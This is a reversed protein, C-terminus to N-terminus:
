EYMRVAMCRRHVRRSGACGAVVVAEKRGERVGVM